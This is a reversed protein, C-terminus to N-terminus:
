QAKKFNLEPVNNKVYKYAKGLKKVIDKSTLQKYTLAKVESKDYQKEDGNNVFKYSYNNEMKGKGWGVIAGCNSDSEVTCGVSLCNYVYAETAHGLIPGVYVGPCDFTVNQAICNNIITGGNYTDDTTSYIIPNWLIGAMLSIGFFTLDSKDIRAAEGLIGGACIDRGIPYHWSSGIFGDVECTDIYSSQSKGVLAGFSSMCSDEHYVVSNKLKVNVIAAGITAGFLGAEEDSTTFMGSITHGNGNFLGCFVKYGFVAGGGGGIPDWDNAPAFDTWTEWDSDDNLKIDNTLNVTINMFNEELSNTLKALGALQEPTSIDYTDKKGDYWSTDVKGTWVGPKNKPITVTIPDSTDCRHEPAVSYRDDMTVLRIKMKTGPKVDTYTISDGSYLKISGDERVAEWKKQKSNYIELVTYPGNGYPTNCGDFTIDMRNSRARVKINPHSAYSVDDSSATKLNFIESCGQLKYKNGDIICSYVKFEYRTNNKLGSINSYNDDTYYPEGTRSSTDVTWKSEGKKRFYVLYADAGKVTEWKIRVDDDNVWGAHVIPGKVMGSGTSVKAPASENKKVYKGNSKKFSTVRFRYTTDEKLGTVTASCKTTSTVEEFEETFDNYMYLKYKAAGKDENWKLTVSNETKSSVKIKIAAAAASAEVAVIGTLETVGPVGCIMSWSMAVALMGKFFRSKKTNKMFM